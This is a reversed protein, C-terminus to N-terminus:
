SLINYVKTAKARRREAIAEEESSTVLQKASSIGSAMNTEDLLSDGM